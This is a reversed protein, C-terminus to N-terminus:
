FLSMKSDEAVSHWCLRGLREKAALAFARARRCARPAPRSRKDSPGRVCRRRASSRLMSFSRALRVSLRKSQGSVNLQPDFPSKYTVADCISFMGRNLLPLDIRVSGYLSQFIIPISFDSYGCRVSSNVAGPFDKRHISRECRVRPCFRQCRHLKGGAFLSKHGHREPRPGSNWLAYRRKSKGCARSFCNASDFSNTASTARM